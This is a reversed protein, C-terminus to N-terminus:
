LAVNQDGLLGLLRQFLEEGYLVEIKHNKQAQKIRAKLDDGLSDAMTVLLGGDIDYAGFAQELQEIGTTDNDHDWHMKVQIALKSRLAYALQIECMLDAGREAPGATSIVDMGDQKLIELILRETEKATLSVRLSAKLHPLLSSRWGAVKDKFAEPTGTDNDTATTAALERVTEHHKHTVRVPNQERNVANIFPSPVIKSYKHFVRIIEVPLLHGYDGIPDIRFDYKGVVTALTFQQRSPLNKVVVIDGVAISLLMANCRDWAQQEQHDLAIAQSLKQDIARLDLKPDYGWGQRLRGAKLEQAFYQQNDLDINWFWCQM